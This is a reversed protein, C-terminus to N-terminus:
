HGDLIVIIVQLARYAERVHRFPKATPNQIPPPSIVGCPLARSAVRSPHGSIELFHCLGGPAPHKPAQCIQGFELINERRLLAPACRAKTVRLFIAAINIVQM